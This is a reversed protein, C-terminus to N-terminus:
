FIFEAVQETQKAVSSFSRVFSCVFHVHVRGCVSKCHMGGFDVKGGNRQVIEEAISTVCNVRVRWGM